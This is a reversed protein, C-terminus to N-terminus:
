YNDLIRRTYLESKGNSPFNQMFFLNMTSEILQPNANQKDYHEKHYKYYFEAIPWLGELWENNKFTKRIYVSKKTVKIEFCESNLMSDIHWGTCHDKLLKILDVNKDSCDSNIECFSEEKLEKNSTCLLDKTCNFYIKGVDSDESREKYIGCFFKIFKDESNRFEEVTHIKLETPDDVPQSRFVSLDSSEDKFMKYVIYALFITAATGFIINM